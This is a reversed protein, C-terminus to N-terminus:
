GGVTHWFSEEDAVEQILGMLNASPHGMKVSPSVSARVGGAARYLGGWSSRDGREPFAFASPQFGAAGGPFWARAEFESIVRPGVDESGLLGGVGVQDAAPGPPRAPGEAQGPGPGPGAPGTLAAREAGAPVQRQVGGALGVNGRGLPSGAETMSALLRARGARPPPAPPSLTIRPRM